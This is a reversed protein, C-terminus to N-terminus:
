EGRLQRPGFAWATDAPRLTAWQAERAACAALVGVLLSPNHLQGGLIRDRLLNLPAWAVTM